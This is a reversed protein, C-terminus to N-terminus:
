ESEEDKKELKSKIKRLFSSIGNLLKGWSIIKRRRMLFGRGLRGMSEADIMKRFVYIVLLQLSAIVPAALMLGVFGILNGAILAGVLIVAPHLGLSDGFLRPGVGYDLISDMLVSAIVVIMALAWPELGLYNPGQFLAVLAAIGWALFPGIYPLLRAMGSLIGLVLAANLGLLSNMLYYILITILIIIIQGRLYSDWIRSFAQNM